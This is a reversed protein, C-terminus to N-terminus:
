QRNGLKAEVVALRQEIEVLELTKNFGDVLKQLEGAEAPTIESDAVGDVLVRVAELSDSAKELRPLRFPVHRDKRPPLLRDLCLRLAMIDGGKAMEIAKRTLAEGEGALLSEMALTVKNRSGQPRGGPNGSQGKKWPRKLGSPPGKGGADEPADM